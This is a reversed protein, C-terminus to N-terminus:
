ISKAVLKGLGIIPLYQWYPIKYILYFLRNYFDPLYLDFYNQLTNYKSLINLVM